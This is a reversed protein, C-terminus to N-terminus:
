PRFGRAREFDRLREELLDREMALGAELLAWELDEVAGLPRGSGRTTATSSSAWGTGSSWPCSSRKRPSAGASFPWCGRTPRPGPSPGGGPSGGSSRARRGGLARRPAAERQPRPRRGRAARRPRGARRGAGRRRAPAAAPGPQGRRLGTAAPRPDGRGPALPRAPGLRHRSPDLSGGGGGGRGHPDHGRPPDPRHRSGGGGRAGRHGGRHRRGLRRARGRVPLLRQAM